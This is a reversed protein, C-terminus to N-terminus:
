AGDAPCIFIAGASLIRTRTRGRKLLLERLVSYWSNNKLLPSSTVAAM